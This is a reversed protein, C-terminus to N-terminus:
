QVVVAVTWPTLKKYLTDDEYTNGCYWIGNDFVYFWEIWSDQCATFFDEFSDYTEPDVDTEGQDRYYGSTLTSRDGYSILEEVKETSTYEQLESGVGELYGDFHVYVARIKDDIRIGIMSRTSM